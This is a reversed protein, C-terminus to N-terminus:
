RKVEKGIKGERERWGYDTAARYRSIGDVILRGNAMADCGVGVAEM